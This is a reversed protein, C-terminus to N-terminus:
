LLNLDAIDGLEPISIMGFGREQLYNRYLKQKEPEGHILFMHKVSAKQNELVQYMETRDGHASFSDMVEIRARVIKEEGFLKITQEGNKLKGGPTDPSCYGIILITNKPDEVNNALHHKVRGTNMMGSSSIIVCPEANINLQKSEEVKTIYHLSNFGFPDNDTLMHNHLEEDYCELHEKYFQTANVSLPSDVYVPINAPLEGAGVLKDLIYVVEQTRGVSFAPIIVRGKNKVVTQLIIDRFRISESPASEHERDGYTSEAILYDVPPMQQPDKLIPRNPRGIDGTFGIRTEKEGEKIYLTVSASGLIHGMDRFQVKVNPHIQFWNDYSYTVFQKLANKADQEDYLPIKPQADLNKNRLIKKNFYEAESQQIRASDLLMITALSRTAATAYIRGSFGDKVLKPIRGSHDIHAHSLVLCDLKSPDFLWNENFDKWNDSHGQYLGCDLLISFGDDLVLLHASGTVEGAAGCFKIKM